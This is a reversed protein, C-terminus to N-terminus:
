STYEVAESPPSAIYGTGRAKVTISHTGTLNLNSLDYAIFKTANSTLATYFDDTVTQEESGFDIAKYEQKNWEGYDYVSQPSTQENLYYVMRSSSSDKLYGIQGYSKGNCYFNVKQYKWSTNVFTPTDNWMWFGSVTPM